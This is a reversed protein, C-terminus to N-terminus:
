GRQKYQDINGQIFKETQERTRPPLFEMVKPDENIAVMAPIDSDRWQRIILRATKIVIDTM